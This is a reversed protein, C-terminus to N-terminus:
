ELAKHTPLFYDEWAQLTHYEPIKGDWKPRDKPLSNSKLLSSSAIAALLDDSFPLGARKAKKQVNRLGNLYEPVRTKKEWLQTLSVFLDVTDVRKLGGIAKTRESLMEVPTVRTFFTTENKLPRLWNLNVLRLLYDNAGREIACKSSQNRTIVAWNERKARGTPDEAQLDPDYNARAAVQFNYPTNTAIAVWYRADELIAGSPNCADTGEFAIQPCVNLLDEKITVVHDNNPIGAAKICNERAEAFLRTIEVISMITIAGADPPSPAWHSSPPAKTPIATPSWATNNTM